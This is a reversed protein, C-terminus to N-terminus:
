QCLVVGGGQHRAEMLADHVTPLPGRAAAPGSVPLHRRGPRAGDPGGLDRLGRSEVSQRVRQAMIEAGDPGTNPLLFLFTNEDYRGLVDTDRSSDLFIGTLERLTAGDAQSEFGAMVFALPLEFRRARKFEEDVKYGLFAYHFLGTEPDITAQVLASDSEGTRLDRLLSQPLEHTREGGRGDEPMSRTRGGAGELVRRMRSRSLPRELVGAAGSFRALASAMHNGLEM